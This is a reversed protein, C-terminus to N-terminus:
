MLELIYFIWFFYIKLFIVKFTPIEMIKKKKKKRQSSTVLKQYVKKLDTIVFFPNKM